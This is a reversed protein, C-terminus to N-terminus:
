RGVQKWDEKLDKVNGGFPIFTGGRLLEGESVRIMHFGDCNSM